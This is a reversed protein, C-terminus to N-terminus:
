PPATEGPLPPAVAALEAQTAAVAPHSDGLAQKRLALASRFLRAAETPEGKAAYTRALEAIADASRPHRPGMTSQLGDLATELAELAEAYRGQKRELVGIRLKVGAVAPHDKCLTVAFQTSAGDYIMRANDYRGAEALRDGLAVELFATTPDEPGLRARTTDRAATAVEVAGKFDKGAALVRADAHQTRWRHWPSLSGRQMASVALTVAQRADQLKGAELAVDTRLLAIELQLMAVRDRGALKAAEDLAAVAEDWQGRQAHVRALLLAAEAQLKADADLAHRQHRKVEDLVGEDRRVDIRARTRALDRGIARSRSLDAVPPTPADTRPMALRCRDLSPLSRAVIPAAAITDATPESLARLLSDVRLLAADLCAERAARVPEAQTGHVHTASCTDLRESSWRVLYADFGREARAWAEAAYAIEIHGYAERLSERREDSFADDAASTVGACPSADESRLLFLSAAGGAAVIAVGTWVTRPRMTPM